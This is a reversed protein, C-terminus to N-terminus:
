PSFTQPRGSRHLDQLCIPIGEDRRSLFRSRWYIITERHFTLRRASEDITVKEDAWLIIRARDAIRHETKVLRVLRELAYREEEALKIVYKHPKM